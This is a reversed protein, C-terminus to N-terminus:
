KESSTTWVPDIGDLTYGYQRILEKRDCYLALFQVHSQQKKHIHIIREEATPFCVAYMFTVHVSFEAVKLCFEM